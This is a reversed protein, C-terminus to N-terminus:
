EKTMHTPVSLRQQNLHVWRVRGHIEHAGVLATQVFAGNVIRVLVHMDQSCMFVADKAHFERRPTRFYKEGAAGIPRHANPNIVNNLRNDFQVVAEFGNM